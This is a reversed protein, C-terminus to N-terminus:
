LSNEKAFESMFEILADVGAMPMANYLSARIGGVLRHGKLAYLGRLQALRLFENELRTNKLSFCVNVISRADNDIDTSYFESSDLYQYLKTAKQCNLRYMEDVGGQAKIWRFMKDALYCNFVPPTAYLSHHEAQTKYHLMTPVPPNPARELLDDRIIVITLGANAINKQAGAFILGFKSVDLPESLLSSTMDAVLPIETIPPVYPFQVGNVTENATYYVYATNENIEWDKASPINKYSNKESSAICYAKKLYQAESFAIHSWIGTIIYGAQENPHLLNMPIMAFQTRAAGGLFLIQYNKPITLLERLTQEAHNLLAMFESSRHGIELVSIGLNKWDLFEEQAERLICEPLMAPGAGFNYVRTTM